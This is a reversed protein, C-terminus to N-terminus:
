QAPQVPVNGHIQHIHDMGTEERAIDGLANTDNVGRRLGDDQAGANRGPVARVEIEAGLCDRPSQFRQFSLRVSVGRGGSARKQFVQPTVFLDSGIERFKVEYWRDLVERHPLLVGSGIQEESWLRRRDYGELLEAGAPTPVSMGRVVCSGPCVAATGVISANRSDEDDVILVFRAVFRIRGSGCRLETLDFREIRDFFCPRDNM